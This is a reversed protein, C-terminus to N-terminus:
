YFVTLLCMAAGQILEDGATHGLNDNVVKLGNVDISAYVLSDKKSEELKLVEDEYAARNYLGTLEDMNARGYLFSENESQIMVYVVLMSVSMLTISVNLGTLLTVVVSVLPVVCYSLAALMDHTSIKKRYSVVIGGLIIISIMSILYYVSELPGARYKGDQITYLKESVCLLFIVFGEIISYVVMFNVPKKSLKTNLSIHEYLYLMFFIQMIPTGWFTIAVLIGLIM